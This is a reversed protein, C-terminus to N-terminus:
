EKPKSSHDSKKIMKDLLEQFGAKSVTDGTNKIQEKPIEGLMTVTDKCVAIAMYTDGVRVIQLFKNNGIRTTEVIEVNCNTNQQKQFNAIWKTTAATIGLVLVFIFLVTILQLFSSNGGTLLVAM